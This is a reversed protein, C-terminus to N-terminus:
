DNPLYLILKIIPLCLPGNDQVWTFERSRISCLSSVLSGFTIFYHCKNMIYLIGYWIGHDLNLEWKMFGDLDDFCVWQKHPTIVITPLSFIFGSSSFTYLIGPFVKFAWWGLMVTNSNHHPLAANHVATVSTWCLQKRLLGEQRGRVTKDQVLGLPQQKLKKKRGGSLTPVVARLTATRFTNEWLSYLAFCSADLWLGLSIKGPNRIFQWHHQRQEWTKGGGLGPM